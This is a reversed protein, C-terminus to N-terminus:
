LLYKKFFLVMSEQDKASFGTGHGAGPVVRLKVEAGAKKLADALWHSQSVPVLDDKDGHIILFPPALKSVYTIPSAVKEAAKDDSGFLALVVKHATASTNVIRNLDSPGFWDCVAQVSSSATTIGENGELSKVGNSTGLLAALHGGASHGWVGVKSTDIGYQAGHARLWRIAAKCDNVQAPWRAEDTLRYNISAVAMGERLLPLANVDQKSGNRWGGGHIYVVLPIKKGAPVKPVALDLSRSAGGGDVYILDRHVDLAVTGAGACVVAMNAMVISVTFGVLLNLRLNTM